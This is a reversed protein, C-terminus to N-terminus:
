CVLNVVARQVLGWGTVTIAHWTMPWGSTVKMLSSSLALSQAVGWDAVQSGCCLHIGRVPYVVGSLFTRQGVHWCVADVNSAEDAAKHKEGVQRHVTPRSFPSVIHEAAAGGAAAAAASIGAQQAGIGAEAARDYSQQHQQQRDMGAEVAKQLAEQTQDNVVASWNDGEVAAILALRRQAADADTDQDDMLNEGMAKRLKLKKEEYEAREAPSLLSLDLTAGDEVASGNGDSSSGSSSGEWLHQEALNGPPTTGAKALWSDAEAQMHTRSAMAKNAFVMPRIFAVREKGMRSVHGKVALVINRSYGVYQLQQHQDYIAYVGLPKEGQRSRLYDSMPVISSGDDEGQRFTYQSIRHADADGEGYLYGHLSKHGEPVAQDTVPASAVNAPVTDTSQPASHASVLAIQRRAPRTQRLPQLFQGRSRTFFRHVGPM